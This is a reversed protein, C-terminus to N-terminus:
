SELGKIKEELLEIQKELSAILKENTHNVMDGKIYNLGNTSTCNNFVVHDDFDLIASPTVELLDAIKYLQQISIEYQGLELSSYHQQSIGVGKAIHEQTYNRLERLKKIKQGVELEM